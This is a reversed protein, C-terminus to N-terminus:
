TPVLINRTRLGKTEKRVVALYAKIADKINDLAEQETEGQSHCGPLVPCRVDYGHASKNIVVTYKMPPTYCAGTTADVNGSMRM